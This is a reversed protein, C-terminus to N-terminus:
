CIAEAPEGPGPGSGAAPRNRRFDASRAERRRRRGARARTSRFLAWQLFRSMAQGQWVHEGTLANAAEGTDWPPRPTPRKKPDSNANLAEIRHSIDRLDIELQKEHKRTQIAPKPRRIPM